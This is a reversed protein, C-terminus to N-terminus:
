KKTKMLKLRINNETLGFVIMAADRAHNSTRKDWGTIKKFVNESMKTNEPHRMIFPIELDTLYDEWISCDRKISGAGQAQATMDKGGFFKRLRADEIIVAKLDLKSIDVFYMAKHIPMTQILEFAKSELNWIAIGTNTGPDIGIVISM